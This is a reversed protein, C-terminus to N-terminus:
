ARYRRLSKDIEVRNRRVQKALEKGRAAFADGRSIRLDRDLVKSGSSVRVPRSGSSAGVRRGHIGSHCDTCVSTLYAPNTLGHSYSTHHVQIAPRRRCIQCIGRDRELIRERTRKWEDSALFNRYAGWWSGAGKNGYTRPGSGAKGDGFLLLVFTVLFPFLLLAILHAVM